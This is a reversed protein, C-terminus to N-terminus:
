LHEEIIDAIMPFATELDNWESLSCGNVKPNYSQLGAWQMVADPLLETNPHANHEWAKGTEKTYVDCLVGLCCWFNELKLFDEGQPYNGSRLGTLWKAKIKKDM